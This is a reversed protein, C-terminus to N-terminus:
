AINGLAALTMNQSITMSAIVGHRRRDEPVLAIGSRIAESPNRISVNKGMLLVEGADWPQLGFLTRALDTRGSGVLGALGLIEGARVCITIDRLGSARSSLNRAELLIEGPQHPTEGTATLEKGVMMRILSQKDIDITLRTGISMGDRLVTIRDALHFLEDLRHSIYIIGTGAARLQHVVTFLKEVEQGTLSATPEDLILVRADAGLARAIEVLQQQPMSLENVLARTDIHAGIQQLLARAREHRRPWNVRRWLGTPETELAINEAVTLDPFLAPQQYIAAVGLSRARLPDNDRVAVGNIELTGGDARVAGTIVKILTTKGAGNEGVLAHVEGPQLAFTAGKLAQVGAFSKYIAIASILSLTGM